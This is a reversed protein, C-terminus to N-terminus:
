IQYFNTSNQRSACNELSVNYCKVKECDPPTPWRTATSVRRASVKVSSVLEEFNEFQDLCRKNPNISFKLSFHYISKLM